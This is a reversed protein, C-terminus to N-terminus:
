YIIFDEIEEDLSKFEDSDINSQVYDIIEEAHHLYFDRQREENFEIVVSYKLLVTYILVSEKSLDIDIKNLKKADVLYVNASGFMFRCEFKRIGDFECIFAFRLDEGDKFPIPSPNLFDAFATSESRRFYSTLTSLM